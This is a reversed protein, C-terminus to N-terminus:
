HTNLLLEFRTRDEGTIQKNASDSVEFRDSMLIGDGSIQAHHVSIGAAAFARAIDQLAGAEDRGTVTVITHWPLITDDYHVTFHRSQSKTTELSVDFSSEIDTALAREDPKPACKVVFSDIVTGDDWTALDASLVNMNNSALTATIRALLGPMDHTVVDVLWEGAVATEYVRSRVSGHPVSPEALMVHRAIVTPQHSLVYTSSAADIRRHANPDITLERAERRRLSDLSSDNGEILEPHALVAQVGTTVTLLALYQDEDLEGRATTLIRCWEVMLPTGLYGALHVLLRPQEDTTHLSLASRLLTSAHVLSTTEKVVSAPFDYSSFMADIDIGAHLEDIAHAALLPSCNDVTVDRLKTRVVSTVDGVNEATMLQEVLSSALM